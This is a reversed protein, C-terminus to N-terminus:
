TMGAAAQSATRGPAPIDDSVFQLAYLRAYAGGRQMLEAHTGSELVKGRDFVYILHSDLITSLRHAIVITTRGQMLESLAARIQVESESDLASTAEDLLLIPADKLMARAIAIRQREGGSLRAGRGGVQTEYGQPLRLIFDHAAAGKAAAQIEAFSAGPRGYAINARVTDDFLSVDQSVLAVKSRLSAITASRIDTGDITIMGKTPEYFRLILNFITTKGAGSPGVLAVRRGAPALLSIEELAPEGEGYGFQVGTLRVEGAPAELPKADARDRIAPETDLLAFIRSAASLGEQLNANLSALSKLPQYALMLATIFSFFTGPTTTGAIVQAGGYFIVSAIAVSGLAEMLPHSASRTRGSKRILKSIVGVLARVRSTEYAEMGYAKVIRAGALTEDLLSVLEGAREQTSTTVRRMRRGIRTIPLVASPFVILAILALLWDQYFLLSALFLLTLLDKGVGILTKNLAGRLLEADTTFRAILKGSTTSQLFELDASILREYMRAQIDAVIQQGVSIMITDQFYTAIGKLIALLIVALPVMLLMDRDRELFVRDLVPEMLWANAATGAAAIAMCTLAIALSNALPRMHESLLRRVLPGTATLSVPLPSSESV